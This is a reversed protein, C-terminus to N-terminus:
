SKARDNVPPNAEPHPAPPQCNARHFETAKEAHQRLEEIGSQMLDPACAEYYAAGVKLLSTASQAVKCIAARNAKAGKKVERAIVQAGREDAKTAAEWEQMLKPTCEAAQATGCALCFIISAKRLM